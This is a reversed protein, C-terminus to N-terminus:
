IPRGVLFYSAMDGPWSECLDLHFWRALLADLVVTGHRTCREGSLCFAWRHPCEPYWAYNEPLWRSVTWSPVHLVLRGGQVIKARFAQLTAEVDVCHELTHSSFLVDVEGPVDDLTRHEAQLDVLIAGPLPGDSGGFDIVRKGATWSAIDDRHHNVAEWRYVDLM